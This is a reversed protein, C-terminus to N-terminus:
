LFSLGHLDDPHGADADRLAQRRGLSSFAPGGRLSLSAPRQIGLNLRADFGRCISSELNAGLRVPALAASVECSRVQEGIECAIARRRYTVRGCPERIFPSGRDGM